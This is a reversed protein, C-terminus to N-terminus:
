AAAAVDDDALIASASAREVISEYAALAAMVGFTDGSRSAEGIERLRDQLRDLEALARASPDNPLM